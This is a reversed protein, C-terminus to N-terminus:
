AKVNLVFKTSSAAGSRPTFGVRVSLKLRGTSKLVRKAKVSLPVKVTFTGAKAYSKKVSRLGSGAVSVRGPGTVTATVELSSGVVKRAGLRLKAAAADPQSPQENGSGAFTASGAALLSPAESRAGQCGDGTCTAVDTRKFGGDVRADYVDVAGDTDGPDLGESTAFFVDDGSASIDLLFSKDHSRGSSILSVGSPTWEYVDLRGNSDRPLLADPSQFFVRQGDASMGRPAILEGSHVSNSDDDTQNALRAEGSPVIGDPPCSICTLKDQVVDYRYVQVVGGTNFGPMPARSSFVFVSGSATARAPAVQDSPAGQRLTKITGHDWVAIQTDNGFLFRQADDSAAVVTGAVGPLYSVKDTAVDYRYVKQSSDTPAGPALADLSQFIAATGDASGFAYEHAFSDRIGGNLTRVPAAGNIAPTGDAAHSALTSHGARRVYLQTPPSLTPDTGPDPSVFLLTSGDRSVQNSVEEPTTFNNSVRASNGTSAPAAGGPDQTGDPLTGAAKLTGGSYEYLGWATSGSPARAADEPLLTPAGWFYITSLDPSGGVPQFTYYPIHGPAPDPNPILPRTLWDISGDAHGLYLAGSTSVNATEPNDPVYTGGSGFLVKTMDSSPVLSHPEHGYLIPRPSSTPPLASTSTWGDASRRGISYEQLGRTAAGMPGRTGYFIANGDATATAYKWNNNPAGADNGNKATPSVQEYMRGDPLTNAHAAMPTALTAALLAMAACVGRRSLSTIKHTTHGKGM